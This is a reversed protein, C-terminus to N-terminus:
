GPSAVSEGEPHRRLGLRWLGFAALGLPVPAFYTLLRYVVVGAAITNVWGRGAVQGLLSVYVLESVGIDGPTTPLASIARVMAWVCVLAAWSAREGPLGVGRLCWAFLLVSSAVVLVEGVAARKWTQRALVAAQNRVAVIRDAVPRRVVRAVLGAVTRTRRETGAAFLVAASSVILVGCGAALLRAVGGVPVDGLWLALAAVVPMVMKHLSNFVTPGAGATAAVAPDYGWSRLMRYRLPYDSPGPVVSTVASTALFTLAGRRVSLGPVFAAALIAEAVLLAMFAAGIRAYEAPSLRRLAAGVEVADFDHFVWALVVGALVLSVVTVAVRGAIRTWARPRASM